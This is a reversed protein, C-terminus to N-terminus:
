FSSNRIILETAIFIKKATKRGAIRELLTDVATEGMTETYVKVTSLAPFVYKSISIDNVGIINVRDPVPIGEELLARLAGVAISDNGAFFATPLRDGHEHIAKKMLAHGDEASFAGVYMFAEDALGKDTLYCKFTWERPDEIISTQDKFAERGGIYGIKEHGKKLFHDLVKKTAREFDVVISDFREEDPSTDVFVINKTIKLLESVQKESFKGIAILGQIDDEKLDEYNDQFYKTVQIGQQRCQNEVGLRISMYYLDELEEKETYWQLLAIKGSEQRRAPKKKYSLEEAVEFIRKKTEDGVSLTTDYNLVRSVTAISVGAIQAIDKITAM